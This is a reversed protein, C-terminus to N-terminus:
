PALDVVLGIVREVDEDTLHPGMPLSLVTAAMTEAIPLSEGRSFAPQQHCPTPYHILTEVGSARLRDALRDRGDSRIVYLHWVHEAEAAVFPTTVVGALGETYRRAIERRRENFRDLHQLQVRLAAAHMEDLRSNVGAQEHVYKQRSGYNRLLRLQAALEPDDTTVAGGDGLAGLNKSPYFSWCAANGAGGVRTGNWRAGHAQAADEVVLVDGAAAALRQSDFPQGYLHVPLVARTRPGIASSIAEATLNFTAPDVEVPVPVAGCAAVALWTAVFTHSPVLVEDGPEVGCARLTLTLADLGNGVSICHQAGVFAAWENEFAEVEPGLVFWGSAVVRSVADHLEQRIPEHAAKLDLFRIM